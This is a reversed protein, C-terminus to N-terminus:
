LKQIQRVWTQSFNTVNKNNTKSWYNYVFLAVCKIIENVLWHSKLGSINGGISLGRQDCSNCREQKLLFHWKGSHVLGAHEVNEPTELRVGLEVLKQDVFAHSALQMLVIVVLQLSFEDLLDM